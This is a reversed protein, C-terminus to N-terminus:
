FVGGPILYQMFAYLFFFALLAIIANAIKKKAASVAQPNPGASAYQIGGLIIMITVVVGVGVALFNIAILIWNVIPNSDLCQQPNDRGDCNALATREEPTDVPNPTEPNNKSSSGDAPAGKYAEACAGREAEPKTICENWAAANLEDLCQQYANPDRYSQCHQLRTLAQAKGQFLIFVGSLVVAIFVPYVKVIYKQKAIYM